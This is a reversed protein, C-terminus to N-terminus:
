ESSRWKFCRPSLASVVSLAPADTSERENQVPFTRKWGQSLAVQESLVFPVCGHKVLFFLIDSANELRHCAARRVRFLGAHLRFFTTYVQIPHVM